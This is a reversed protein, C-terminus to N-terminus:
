PDQRLVFPSVGEERAILGANRDAESASKFQGLRVRYVMGGPTEFSFIRVPLRFQNQLKNQFLIANEKISFAGVQLTYYARDDTLPMRVVKFKVEATGKQVIDLASAAGYSLDLIRGAVFPGRDNVKVVVSKSNDMSVVKILTGLPLTRHAASLGYM